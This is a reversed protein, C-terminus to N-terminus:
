HHELEIANVLTDSKAKIVTQKTNPDKSVEPKSTSHKALFDKVRRSKEADKIQGKDRENVADKVADLEGVANASWVIWFKETGQHEDFRMWATQLKQDASVEPSGKNTKPEPFLVNYTTVGGSAPGENLLYLFGKQPSTINMRFKWGNEFIEQGSSEFTDQYPRGNRMKQVTLGYRLSRETVTTSDGGPETPGSKSRRAYWIGFAGIAAVFIFGILLLAIWSKSKGGSSRQSLGLESLSPNIPEAAQYPAQITKVAPASNNALPTESSLRTMPLPQREHTDSQMLASALAECFERPSSYRDAQNYSLAKLVIEQGQQSVSPRLDSPKVRVGQQHINLLEFGTEPNFPKRGTLMEYAIVGLAFVDTATSLPRGTLQEPAMYSVTGPSLNLSTSPAIVSDKVKAVGFDIIKVQEDQHGLDQLMINDPKLDRHLIGQAHAASLARGVQKLIEATRELGMGEPIMVSRLTVGEVFQMVIFPKGDRLEGADVIGVIGPHDIRSLAEIEQRFKQVVYQNQYADELLVKVVVRRSHLQQDLALYVAGMGGRQLEQQVLYRGNLLQGELHNSSQRPNDITTPAPEAPSTDPARDDNGMVRSTLAM